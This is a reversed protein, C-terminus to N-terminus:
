RKRPPRQGSPGVRVVEFNSKTSDLRHFLHDPGAFCLTTVGAAQLGAVVKPWHIPKDFTDLMMTAVDDAATIVTGDQDTVIPMGADRFQYRPFIEEAARRRLGVFAPAHVPPEMTYMSYGGAAGVRDKFEGLDGKRLSVMFFGEDLYGSYDYWSGRGSLEDLIETLREPATRVVTHTVADQYEEAFYDQECRALEATLTVTEAFTLVGTYAAAAKQGFSPGTCIEPTIGLVERARDAAAMSNILFAIQTAESYDDEADRLRDFVSYGLVEDAEALRKRAFPDLMLFRGVEAFSSPGMGPFVIATKSHETATM